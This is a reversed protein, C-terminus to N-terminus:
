LTPAAWGPPPALGATEAEAGSVHCELWADQYVASVLAHLRALTAVDPAAAAPAEQVQHAVAPATGQLLKIHTSAWLSRYLVEQADELWDRLGPFAQNVATRMDKQTIENLM